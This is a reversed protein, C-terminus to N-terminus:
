MILYGAPFVADRDADIVLDQGSEESGIRHRLAGVPHEVFQHEDQEVDCDPPLQGPGGSSDVCNGAFIIM